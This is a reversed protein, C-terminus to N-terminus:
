TGAYDSHLSWNSVLGPFYDLLFSIPILFCIRFSLHGPLSVFAFIIKIEGKRQEVDSVHGAQQTGAICSAGMPKDQGKAELPPSNTGHPVHKFQPKETM